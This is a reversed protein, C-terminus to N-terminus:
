RAPRRLVPGCPSVSIIYAKVDAVLLLPEANPPRVTVLLQYWVVRAKHMSIPRKKRTMGVRAMPPENTGLCFTGLVDPVNGVSVGNNPPRTSPTTNITAPSVNKGMRARAGM